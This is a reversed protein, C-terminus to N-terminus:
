KNTKYCNMIEYEYYYFFVNIVEVFSTTWLKWNLSKIRIMYNLCIDENSYKLSKFNNKERERELMFSEILTTGIIKM